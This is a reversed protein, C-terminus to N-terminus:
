NKLGSGKILFWFLLVVEGFFLVTSIQPVYSPVLFVIISDLAYALGSMVVLLGVLKPIFKSNAVLWGLLVLHIGFFLLGIYWINEFSNMAMMAQTYLNNTDITKLYDANSLLEVVDFLSAIAVTFIATYVLRFWAMLLSLSKHTSKFIFYLSWSVALDLLVIIIFGLVGLRFLSEHAIINTATAIADGKVLVSQRVFMESFGAIIAMLLLGVGAIISHNRLSIESTNSSM